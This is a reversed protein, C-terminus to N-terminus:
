KDEAKLESGTKAGHKRLLKAFESEDDSVDLPTEYGDWANVDAGNAILLKAVETCGFVATEHMATWGHQFKQNVDMGADLFIKIADIDGGAVAGIFTGYKGNHKRLLEATEKNSVIDLPTEEGKNKTNVDVNNTILLLIIDKSGHKAAYHMPTNGFKDKGELDAGNAILQKAVETHSNLAALLLPSVAAAGGKMNVNIDKDLEAQVGAIDGKAAADHIPGSFATGVLLVAAITTLLFHKM